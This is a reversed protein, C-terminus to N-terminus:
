LVLHSDEASLHSLCEQVLIREEATLVSDAALNTFEPGAPDLSTERRRRRSERLVNRAIGFVYAQLPVRIDTAVDNMRALARSMTEQTEDEASECRNWRFFAM